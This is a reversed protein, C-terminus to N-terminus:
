GNDGELARLVAATVERTTARGGLDPTFVRAATVREISRMLRAAAGGEGLHSLMM